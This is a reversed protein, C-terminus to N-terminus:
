SKGFNMINLLFLPNENILVDYYILNFKNQLDINFVNPCEKFISDKLNIYNYKNILKEFRAYQPNSEFKESWMTSWLYNGEFHGWEHEGDKLWGVKYNKFRYHDGLGCDVYLHGGENLSDFSQEFFSELNKCFYSCRTCIITDYKGKLNWNKNIDWNGLTIDYLDGDFINNNSFGLLAVKGVPEINRKFFPITIKDSNGM